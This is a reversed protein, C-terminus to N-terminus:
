VSFKYTHVITDRDHACYEAACQQSKNGEGERVVVVRSKLEAFKVIGTEEKLPIM